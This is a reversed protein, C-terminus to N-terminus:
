NLYKKVVYSIYIIGVLAMISGAILLVLTAAGGDYDGSVANQISALTTGIFVYVITGPIMGLGAIMYAVLTVSTGGMIYNFANFPILPCLRMLFTFKLGETRIAKDLASMLKYKKALSAVSSRFLYRGLIMALTSGIEAGIWVSLSGVIIALWTQKYAQQFAWGAGLTLLSGPIWFITAIIYALIFVLPGGYPHERIWELFASTGAAVQARFVAILIIIVLLVAGIM